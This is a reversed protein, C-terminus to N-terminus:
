TKQSLDISVNLFCSIFSLSLFFVSYDVMEVSKNTKVGATLASSQRRLGSSASHVM